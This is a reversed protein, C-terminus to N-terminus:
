YGKYEKVARKRAELLRDARKIVKDKAPDGTPKNKFVQRLYSDARKSLPGM